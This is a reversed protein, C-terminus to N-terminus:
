QQESMARLGCPVYLRASLEVRHVPQVYKGWAPAAYRLSVDFPLKIGTFSATFFAGPTFRLEAGKAAEDNRNQWPAAFFNLPLGWHLAVGNGIEHKFRPELEFSLDLPHFVSRTSYNPGEYRQNPYFVAEAYANLYFFDAFIYDYYVKLASGWLHRDGERASSNTSPLPAIIGAGLTLRMDERQAPSAEGIIGIKFGGYIDSLLGYKGGGDMRSWANIGPIWLAQATLWDTVSYEIGLGANVATVKGAASGEWEQLQSGFYSSLTICLTQAPALEAEEALAFSLCFCLGFAICLIQKKNM